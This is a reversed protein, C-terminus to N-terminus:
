GSSAQSHRLWAGLRRVANRQAMDLAPPAEPLVFGGQREAIANVGAWGPADPWLILRRVGSRLAGMAMGSGDACDLIDTMPTEPWTAWAAAVVERWWLCGAFLGAGPASLLTVPLGPALAAKADAVGHVIVAPHVIMATRIASAMIDNLRNVASSELPM